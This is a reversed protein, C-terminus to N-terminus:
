EPKSAVQCAIAAARHGPRMTPASRTQMWADYAIASMAKAPMTEPNAVTPAPLVSRLRCTAIAMNAM